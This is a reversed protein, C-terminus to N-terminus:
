HSFYFSLLYLMGQVKATSMVVKGLVASLFSRDWPWLVALILRERGEKKNWELHNTNPKQKHKQRKTPKKTQKNNPELLEHRLNTM